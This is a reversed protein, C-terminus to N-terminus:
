IKKYIDGRSDLDLVIFINNQKTFVVRYKGVRLRYIGLRQPHLLKVDFLQKNEWNMVMFNIADVIKVRLKAPLKGLFKKAPSKYEIKFM